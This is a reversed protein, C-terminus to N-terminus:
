RGDGGEGAAESESREALLPALDITTRRLASCGMNVAVPLAAIHCPATAVHVAIATAGGGLGGAGIGTANVAELLEAEFAAAEESPAPDGVPRMLAHKALAAVKDFTAGVGVGVVLPPCANPGKERVCRVVEEVVGARGAGPTLMVVRSANDTGGGKLMVHLRACGPEDSFTVETFAPTNGQTNSRDFLADRVVSMRLRADRYAQAVADDVLSFVDGPVFVDPGVELSAWVTGTDQCIPVHDARAIADNEVLQDLAFRGLPATEADRAAAIGRSVDCPLECALHPIARGVAEAVVAADVVTPNGARM